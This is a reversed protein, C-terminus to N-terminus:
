IGKGTSGDVLSLQCDKYQSIVGWDKQERLADKIRAMTESNPKIIKEDKVIGLIKYSIAIVERTTETKNLCETTIRYEGSSDLFRWTDRNIDELEKRGGRIFLVMERERDATWMDHTTYGTNLTKRAKKFFESTEQEIPPIYENKFAM